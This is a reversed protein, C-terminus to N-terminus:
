KVSDQFVILEVRRNKNCCSKDETVPRAGGFAVIMMQKEDVGKVRLQEAVTDARMKSFYVLGGAKSPNNIVPNAYGEIRVRYDPNNKLTKAIENIVKENHKMTDSDINVNYQGADAGFMITEVNAIDNVPEKQKLSVNEINANYQEASSSIMAYDVVTDKFVILEVRRNMETRNKNGSIPRTGGFAIVLMQKEDVGRARLQEAITDARRKSFAILGNAKSPNSVFPNAHGEIRVRYNPNKKLMKVIENLVSENRKRTDSDVNVNYQEIDAGFMVSEAYAIDSFILGNLKRNNSDINVNSQETDSGLTVSEANVVDNLIPENKKKDSEINVNSQETNPESIVPEAASSYKECSYKNQEARFPIKRGITVSIGAIHPYGIRISPEIHWDSSLPLTVGAAADVLFSGRSKTADNFLGNEGGRYAVLLGVGSQIFINVPKEPYGLRLFNWRLYIQNDLSFIKDTSYNIEMRTGVMLPSSISIKPDVLLQYSLGKILIDTMGVGADLSWYDESPIETQAYLGGSLMILALPLIIHRKLNTLIKTKSM